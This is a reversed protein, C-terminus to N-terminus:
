PIGGLFEPIIPELRASRREKDTVKFFFVVQQIVDRRVAHISGHQGAGIIVIRIDDCQKVLGAIQGHFGVVRPEPQVIQVIGVFFDPGAEELREAM